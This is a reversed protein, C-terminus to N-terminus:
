VAQFVIGGWGARRRTWMRHFATPPYAALLAQREHDRFGSFVLYSSPRTNQRVWDALTCLTPLRLNALILDYDACRREPRQQHLTIRDALRNHEINRRAEDLACPDVDVAAMQAVGMLTAAIALIGSGTGIDIGHQIVAPLQGRPESGIAGLGELVLRTTPHRGDGFAAGPALVIALADAATKLQCEPPYLMIRDTLPTPCRFGLDIYSQGYLYVYTLRGKAILARVLRRAGAPTCSFHRALRIELQAATMKRPADAVWQCALQEQNDREIGPFDAKMRARM